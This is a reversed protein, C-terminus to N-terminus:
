EQSYTFKKQVKNLTKALQKRYLKLANKVVRNEAKRNQELVIYFEQDLLGVVLDKDETNLSIQTNSM